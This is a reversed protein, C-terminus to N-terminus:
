VDGDTDGFEAIMSSLALRELLPMRQLRERWRHRIRKLRERERFNDGLFRYDHLAVPEPYNMWLCETAKGGGRVTVVRDVRRWRDLMADYLSSRYGSIMVMADQKILIELLRRHEEQTWFEHRYIRRQGKRTERLYPPDAYIFAATGYRKKQLHSIADDCIVSVASLAMFLSQLDAVVAADVDIAINSRAPRKLRMVAASGAFPEIYVDHPPIQNIIWQTMGEGNKGGPYRM